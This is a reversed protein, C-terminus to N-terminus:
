AHLRERGPPREPCPRLTRAALARAPTVVVSNGRVISPAFVADTYAAYDHAADDLAAARLDSSLTSSLAVAGAALIAASTILFARLLTLSRGVGSSRYDRVRRMWGTDARM